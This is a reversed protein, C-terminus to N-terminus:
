DQDNPIDEGAALRTLRNTYKQNDDKVTMDASVSQMKPTHYSLLEVEIKARDSAKMRVLDLDYQSLIRGRFEPLTQGEADRLFDIDEAHMSPTFYDVSHGHLLTKLPNDKNPTGAKRGGLRGRGDNPKRGKPM